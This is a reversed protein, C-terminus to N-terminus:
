LVNKYILQQVLMHHVPMIIKKYNIRLYNKTIWKLKGLDDGAKPKGDCFFSFFVASLIKDPGDAYRPDPVRFSFLYKPDTGAWSKIFNTEETLERIAANELCGDNPDVFGGPFRWLPEKEKKGLLIKSNLRDIVVTDTAQFSTPYTHMQPM